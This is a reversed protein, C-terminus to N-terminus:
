CSGGDKGTRALLERAKVQIQFEAGDRAGFTARKCFEAFERLRENEALLDPARAILARDAAENDMLLVPSHLGYPKGDDTLCIVDTFGLEGGTLNDGCWEWPGATHGGAETRGESM